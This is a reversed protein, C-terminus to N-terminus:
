WFKQVWAIYWSIELFLISADIFRAIFILRQFEKSSIRNKRNTSVRVMSNDEKTFQWHDNTTPPYMSFMTTYSHDEIINDYYGASPVRQTM